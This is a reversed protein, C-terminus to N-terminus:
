ANGNEYYGQNIAGEYPNDDTAEPTLTQIEAPAPRPQSKRSKQMPGLITRKRYGRQILPQPQANSLFIGVPLLLLLLSRAFLYLSCYM